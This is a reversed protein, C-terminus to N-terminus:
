RMLDRFLDELRPQRASRRRRRTTRRRYDDYTYRTRRRRRPLLRNMLARAIAAGAAAIVIGWISKGGGTAAREASQESATAAPAEELENGKQFRESLLALVLQAAIPQLRQMAPGDIRLARGAMEAENRAADDSGYLDVLVALGDAKVEDSGPDGEKLLDSENDELLNLLQEFATPQEARAQLRSAIPPCMAELARKADSPSIGALEGLKRFLQGGQAKELEEVVRM